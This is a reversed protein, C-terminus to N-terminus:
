FGSLCYFSLSFHNKPLKESLFKTTERFISTRKDGKKQLFLCCYCYLLYGGNFCPNKVVITASTFFQLDSLHFVVWIDELSQPGRRSERIVLDTFLLAVFHNLISYLVKFDLWWFTCFESLISRKSKFVSATFCCDVLYSVKCQAQPNCLFNWCFLTSKQLFGHHYTLWDGHHNKAIQCYWM